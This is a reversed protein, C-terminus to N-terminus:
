TLHKQVIYGLKTFLDSLNNEDIDAGRRQPLNVFDVNNFM